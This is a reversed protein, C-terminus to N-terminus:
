LSNLLHWHGMQVLACLPLIPKQIRFGLIEGQLNTKPGFVRSIEGKSQNKSGFVSIERRDTFRFNGRISQNKSRSVSIEALERYLHVGSGLRLFTRFEYRSFTVESFKEKNYSLNPSLVGFANPMRFWQGTETRRCRVFCLLFNRRRASIM